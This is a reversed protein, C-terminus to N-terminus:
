RVIGRDSAAVFDAMMLLDTRLPAQAKDLLGTAQDRLQECAQAAGLGQRYITKYAQRLAAIREAEFGRRKLGERNIGAAKAPNGAAVVFPPVDQLLISGMATIAHAGVRVFQHGVTFGGLVAWDGVTVHGALQTNNAFITHNGVICDHALHAYAMIWNDNGLRTVGGGQVTGRNFTAFERITNRDGIVLRTPEGAYKKDQPEGGLAAFGAIRCNEGIETIGSLVTHPGIKTGSGISVEPGVVCFAEIEVDDGLKARPDVIASPHVRSM